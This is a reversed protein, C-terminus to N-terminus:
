IDLTWLYTSTNRSRWSCEMSVCLRKQVLVMFIRNIWIARYYLNFDPIAIGGLTRKNNLIIKTIRNKIKTTTQNTQNIKIKKGYSTSNLTKLFITNSNQHLNCQMQLKSKSLYGNEHHFVKAYECWCFLISNLWEFCLCRSNEPLCLYTWSIM